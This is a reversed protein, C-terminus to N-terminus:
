TFASLKAKKNKHVHRSKITQQRRNYTTVSRDLSSKRWRGEGRGWSGMELRGPVPFRTVSSTLIKTCKLSNLPEWLPNRHVYFAHAKLAKIHSKNIQAMQKNQINPKIWIISFLNLSTTFSTNTQISKLQM